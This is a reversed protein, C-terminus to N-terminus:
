KESGSDIKVEGFINEHRFPPDIYPVPLHGETLISSEGTHHVQSKRRSQGKEPIYQESM